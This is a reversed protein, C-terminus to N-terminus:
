TVLSGAGKPRHNLGAAAADPEPRMPAPQREALARLWQWFAQIDAARYRASTTGGGVKIGFGGQEHAGAFGKEDTVDDGAFVPKRGLFPPLSMLRLVADKKSRGGLRLEAVMKGELLEVGPSRAALARAFTLCGEQMQPQLRYHLAVSGPKVEVLLGEFREAFREVEEALVRLAAEDFPARHVSGDPDRFELGHVGSLPVRLPSLFAELQAITRGSVVALAGGAAHHLSSVCTRVDDELRVNEPRDAIEALTGDFDLFFATDNVDVEDPGPLNQQRQTLTGTQNNGRPAADRRFAGQWFLGKLRKNCRLLGPFRKM